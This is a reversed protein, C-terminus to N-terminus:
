GQGEFCSLSALSDSGNLAVFAPPQQGDEGGESHAAEATRKERSGGRETASSQFPDSRRSQICRPRLL